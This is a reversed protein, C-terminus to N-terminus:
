MISSFSVISLFSRFNQIPNLSGAENSSCNIENFNEGFSTRGLAEVHVKLRNRGRFHVPFSYNLCIIFIASLKSLSPKPSKQHSDQPIYLLCINDQVFVVACSIFNEMLSKNLLHSWIRLKQRIQDSKSFFDKISLKMKQATCMLSLILM